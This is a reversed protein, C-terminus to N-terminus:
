SVIYNASGTAILLGENNHLAMQTSGIRGGLRNIKASAIFHSGIGPRLYDVHLDITGLKGFREMVQAATDAPHKASIGCMIAFGGISDLAASIVGGHLRGYFYHGVLEPRMDFRISPAESFQHVKLGLTQNFTIAQEFLHGIAAEVTAQETSSRILRAPTSTM